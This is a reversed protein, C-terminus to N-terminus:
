SVQSRKKVIKAPNGVVTTYAEVDNIVVAGMGVVANKGIILPKNMNGNIIVASAGIYAHNEIIVNGNCRVGPALTVFDGIRCDHSIVCQCNAQFYDGITVNSTIITQPSLTCGEGVQVSDLITVDRATVGFPRCGKSILLSSLRERAQSNGIAINFHLIGEIKVFTEFSIVKHGNVFYEEELDEVVFLLESQRGALEAALNIRALPMIERGHGGAGVIGFFNKM